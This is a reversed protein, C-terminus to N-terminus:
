STSTSTSTSICKNTASHPVVFLLDSFDYDLIYLINEKMTPQNDFRVLEWLKADTFDYM